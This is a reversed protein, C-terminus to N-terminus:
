GPPGAGARVNLGVGGGVVDLLILLITVGGLLRKLQTQNTGVLYAISGFALLIFGLLRIRLNWIQNQLQSAEALDRKEKLRPADKSDYEKKRKERDKRDDESPKGDNRQDTERQDAADETAAQKIDGDRNLVKASDMRPSFYSYITLFLGIGYLWTAVDALAGLKGMVQKMQEGAGPGTRARKRDRGRGGEEEEEEDDRGRRRRGGEEGDDKKRADEDDDRGRRRRGGEDEDDKGRRGRDEEEDRPRDDGRDRQREREATDDKRAPPVAGAESERQLGDATVVLTTSCKKCAIRRGIDKEAVAYVAGCEPCANNM